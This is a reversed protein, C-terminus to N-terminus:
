RLHPLKFSLNQSSPSIAGRDACLQRAEKSLVPCSSGREFPIECYNLLAHHCTTCSSGACQNYTMNPNPILRHSFFSNWNIKDRRAYAPLM